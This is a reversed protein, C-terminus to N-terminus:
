DIKLQSVNHNVSALILLTITLNVHLITAYLTMGKFLSDDYTLIKSLFNCAQIIFDVVFLVFPLSVASNLTDMIQTLRRHLSM